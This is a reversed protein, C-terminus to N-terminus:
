EVTQESCYNAELSAVLNSATAEHDQWEPRENGFDHMFDCYMDLAAILVELEKATPNFEGM